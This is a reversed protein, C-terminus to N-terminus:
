TEGRLRLGRHARYRVLLDMWARHIKRKNGPVDYFLERDSYGSARHTLQVVIFDSDPKRFQSIEVGEANDDASRFRHMYPPKKSPSYYSSIQISSRVGVDLVMNM